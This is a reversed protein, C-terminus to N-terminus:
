HKLLLHANISISSQRCPSRYNCLKFVLMTNQVQLCTYLHHLYVTAAGKNALYLLLFCLSITLLYNILQLCFSMQATVVPKCFINFHGVIVAQAYCVRTKGLITTWQFVDPMNCTKTRGVKNANWEEDQTNCGQTYVSSRLHGSLCTLLLSILHHHVGCLQDTTEQGKGKTIATQISCSMAFFIPLLGMMCYVCQRSHQQHYMMWNHYNTLYFSNIPPGQYICCYSMLAQSSVALQKWGSM